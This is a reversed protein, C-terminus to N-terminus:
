DNLYPRFLGEFEDGSKCTNGQVDCGTAPKQAENRRKARGECHISTKQKELSAKLEANERELKAIRDANCGALVSCGVLVLVKLHASCNM